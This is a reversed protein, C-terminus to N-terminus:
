LKMRTKYSQTDKWTVQNDKCDGVSRKCQLCQYHSGVVIYETWEGCWPCDSPPKSM